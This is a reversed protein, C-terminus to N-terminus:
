MNSTALFLRSDWIVPQNLSTTLNPFQPHLENILINNEIAAVISPVFLICARKERLWRDGFAQSVTTDQWNALSYTTM